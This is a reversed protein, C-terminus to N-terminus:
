AAAAVPREAVLADMALVGYTVGGERRRLRAGDGAAGLVAFLPLLHEDTPHNRAAHPARARYDLLAERDGDAGRAAVWDVFESAWAEPGGAPGRRFVEALNHTISGSGILLVGEDTLPALARGIAFHERPGGRADLALQAVPVDADPYLYRLPVWAGHDLGRTADERAAIGAAALRALAARAADPAGPAPYSLRYLEEPFGGFDHITAPAAVVSARVPTTAWHASLVLIARPRPLERGLAALMPGATGPEIALTPAGHSLYLPPLWSM